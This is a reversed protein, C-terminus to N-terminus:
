MCNNVMYVKDDIYVKIHILNFHKMQRVVTGTTNFTKYHINTYGSDGHYQLLYINSAIGFVCVYAPLPPLLCTGFWTNQKMRENPTENAERIAM